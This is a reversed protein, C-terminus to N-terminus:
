ADPRDGSRRAKLTQYLGFALLALSLGTLVANVPTDRVSDIRSVMAVVLGVVILPLGLNRTAM